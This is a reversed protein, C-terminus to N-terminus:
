VALGPDTQLERVVHSRAGSWVRRLTLGDSVRWEAESPRAAPYVAGERHLRTMAVDRPRADDWSMVTMTAGAEDIDLLTWRSREPPVVNDLVLRLLLHSDLRWQQVLQGLHAPGFPDAWPRGDLTAFCSVTPKREGGAGVPVAEIRVGLGEKVFRWEGFNAFVPAAAGYRRCSSGIPVTDASDVVLWAGLIPDEDGVVPNVGNFPAVVGEARLREGSM